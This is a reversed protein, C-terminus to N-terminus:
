LASRNERLHTSWLFTEQPLWSPILHNVGRCLPTTILSHPAYQNHLITAIFVHEPRGLRCAEELTAEGSKILEGRGIPPTSPRICKIKLAKHRQFIVLFCRLDCPKTVEIKLWIAEQQLLNDNLSLILWVNSWWLTRIWFVFSHAMVTLMIFYLCKVKVVKVFLAPKLDNLM